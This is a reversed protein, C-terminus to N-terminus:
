HRSNASSKDAINYIKQSNLTELYHHQKISKRHIQHAARIAQRTLIDISYNKKITDPILEKIAFM